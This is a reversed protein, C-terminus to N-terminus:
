LGFRKNVKLQHIIRFNATPLALLDEKCDICMGKYLSFNFLAFAAYDADFLYCHRLIVESRGSFYGRVSRRQIPHDM